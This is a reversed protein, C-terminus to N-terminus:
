KLCEKTEPLMVGIEPESKVLGIEAEGKERDKRIIVDM